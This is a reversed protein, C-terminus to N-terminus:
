NEKDSLTKCLIVNIHGEPWDKFEAMRKFGAKEYMGPAQFDYSAVWIRRVGRSRAETIFANLLARAYGRGRHPKDVWIQKLESIGAWTYGAAAGIMRGSADRIVFGLGQGDSRGTAHSNHEYLRDEIADIENPSLAHQAEIEVSM